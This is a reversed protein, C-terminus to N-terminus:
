KAEAKSIFTSSTKYLNSNMGFENRLCSFTSGFRFELLKDYMYGDADYFTACNEVESHMSRENSYKANFLVPMDEKLKEDDNSAFLGSKNTLYYEHKLADIVSQDVKTKTHKRYITFYSGSSM